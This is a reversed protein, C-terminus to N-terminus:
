YQITDFIYLSTLLKYPPLTYDYKGNIYDKVYQQLSLLKTETIQIGMSGLQAAPLTHLSYYTVHKENFAPAGVLDPGTISTGPAYPDRSLHLYVYDSFQPTVGIVVGDLRGAVRETVLHRTFGACKNRV